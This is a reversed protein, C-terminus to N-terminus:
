CRTISCTTLYHVRCFCDIQSHRPLVRPCHDVLLLLLPVPVGGPEVPLHLASDRSGHHLQTEYGEERTSHSDATTLMCVVTSSVEGLEVLGLVRPRNSAAAWNAKGSWHKNFQTGSDGNGSTQIPWGSHAHSRLRVLRHASLGGCNQWILRRGHSGFPLPENRPADARARSGAHAGHFGWGRCM